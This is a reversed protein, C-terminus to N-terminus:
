IKRLIAGITYLNRLWKLTPNVKLHSGHKMHNQFIIEESKLEQPIIYWEKNLIMKRQLSNSKSIRKNTKTNDNKNESEEKKTSKM